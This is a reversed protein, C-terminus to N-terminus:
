TTPFLVLCVHFVLSAEAVCVEKDFDRDLIDNITCGAGRVLFGGAMFTAIHAFDPVVGPSGLSLGWLAPLLCLWTGIPRDMRALKLYPQLGEPCKDVWTQPMDHKTNTSTSTGVHDAPSAPRKLEFSFHRVGCSSFAAAPDPLRLPTKALRLLNPSSLHRHLSGRVAVIPSRSLM